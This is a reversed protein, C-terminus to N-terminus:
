TQDKRIITTKSKMYVISLTLVLSFIFLLLSSSVIIVRYDFNLVKEVNVISSIYKALYINLEEIVNNLLICTLLLSIFLNIAVISIKFIILYKKKVGYVYFTCDIRQLHRIYLYLSLMFSIISLSLGLYFANNYQRIFENISNAAEFKANTLYDYKYENKFM